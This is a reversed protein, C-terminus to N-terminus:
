QKRPPRTGGIYHIKEIRQPNKVMFYHTGNYDGRFTEYNNIDIQSPMRSKGEYGNTFFVDAALYTTADSKSYKKADPINQWLYMGKGAINPRDETPIIQKHIINAAENPEAAFILPMRDRMEIHNINTNPPINGDLYRINRVRDSENVAYMPLNDGSVTSATKQHKHDLNLDKETKGLYVDALLYTGHHLARMQCGDMTKCFYIGAGLVGGTGPRMQQSKLISAAAEPDTLHIMLRRSKNQKPHYTSM